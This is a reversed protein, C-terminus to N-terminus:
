FTPLIGKVRCGVKISTSRTVKKSLLILNISCKCDLRNAEPNVVQRLEELYDAPLATAIPADTTPLDQKSM